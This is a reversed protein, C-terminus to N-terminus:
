GAFLPTSYYRDGGDALLAVITKDAYEDRDALKLAAHLVAGSSIGVLVGENKALKGAQLFADGNDVTIISDYIQTDLIKPVFGAGIGQIKHAGASKGSLVASDSPEVAM